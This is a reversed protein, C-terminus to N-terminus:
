FRISGQPNTGNEENKEIKQALVACTPKLEGM